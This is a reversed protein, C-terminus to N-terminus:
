LLTYGTGDRTLKYRLDFNAARDVTSRDVYGDKCLVELTEPYAGNEARFAEVVFRM